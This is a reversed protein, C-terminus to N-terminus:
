SRRHQNLQIYVDIISKAMASSTFASMAKQRGLRGMSKRLERNFVLSKLANALAQADDPEFLIGTENQAVVTRLGPINAAICPLEAFMAEVAAIGFAEAKSPLVFIDAASLLARIDNRYGLLRVTEGLGLEDIMKELSARQAGEGAIWVQSKVGQKSLIDQASILTEFNKGPELRGIALVIIDENSVSQQSRIASRDEPVPSFPQIGPNVVSTKAASVSEREILEKAVHQTVPLFHSIRRNKVKQVLGWARAAPKNSRAYTPQDFHVSNVIPIAAITAAATGLFSDLGLHTHLIDVNSEKLHAALKLVFGLDLYGGAKIVRTNFGSDTFKQAIEGERTCIIVIEHKRGEPSTALNYVYNEVGWM